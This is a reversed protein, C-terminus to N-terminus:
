RRSDECLLRRTPRETNGSASRPDNEARTHNDFIMTARTQADYTPWNPIPDNNPNGTTAFQVWTTAFM